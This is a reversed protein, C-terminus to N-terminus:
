KIASEEGFSAYINKIVKRLAGNLLNYQSWSKFCYWANSM